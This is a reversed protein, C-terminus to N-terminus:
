DFCLAEFHLRLTHSVILQDARLNHFSLVTRTHSHTCRMDNAFNPQIGLEALELLEDQEDRDEEDTDSDAALLAIAQRFAASHEQADDEETEAEDREEDSSRNGARSARRSSAPSDTEMASAEQLEKEKAVAVGAGKENAPAEKAAKATKPKALHATAANIASQDVDETDHEAADAGAPEMGAMLEEWGVSPTRGSWQMWNGAASGVPAGAGPVGAGAGAASGLLPVIFEDNWPVPNM